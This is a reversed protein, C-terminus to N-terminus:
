KIAKHQLIKSRELYSKKRQVKLEYYIMTGAKKQKLQYARNVKQEPLILLTGFFEM